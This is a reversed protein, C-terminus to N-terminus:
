YPGTERAFALLKVQDSAVIVTRQAVASYFFMFDSTRGLYRLRSMPNTHTVDAVGALQSAEVYDDESGHVIYKAHTMGHLYLIPIAALLIWIACVRRNQNKIQALFETKTRIAEAAFWCPLAIVWRGSIPDNIESSTFSSTKLPKLAL